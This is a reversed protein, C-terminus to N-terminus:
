SKLYPKDYLKLAKRGSLAIWGMNLSLIFLNPSFKQTVLLQKKPSDITTGKQLADIFDDLGKYIPQQMKAERPVSDITEAFMVGSGIGLGGCWIFNCRLSFNELIELALTNQHGGLFGCNIFGYVKLPHTVLESHQKIFCEFSRLYDLASSPMSDVYLPAVIVLTDASLAEKFHCTIKETPKLCLKLANAEICTDYHDKIANSFYQIMKHSCSEKDAKPSGNVFVIKKSM